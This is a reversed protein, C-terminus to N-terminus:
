TVMAVAEWAMHSSQAITGRKRPSFSPLRHLWCAWVHCTAVFPASFRSATGPMHPDTKWIGILLLYQSTFGTEAEYIGLLICDNEPGARESKQLPPLAWSRLAEVTDILIYRFLAVFPCTGAISSPRYPLLQHCPLGSQHEDKTVWVDRFVDKLDHIRKWRNRSELPERARDTGADGWPRCRPPYWRRSCTKPTMWRSTGCSTRCLSARRRDHLFDTHFVPATQCGPPQAPSPPRLTPQLGRTAGALDARNASPEPSKTLFGDNGTTYYELQRIM